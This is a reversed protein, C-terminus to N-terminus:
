STYKFVTLMTEQLVSYSEGTKVAGMKEYFTNANPDSTFVFEPFREVVYSFLLKGIGQGISQPLIWLHELIANDDHQEIAVFGATYGDVCATWVHNETIYEPTITLFEARWSNLQECSYGWHGKAKLAIESLEFAQHPLAAQITIDVRSM